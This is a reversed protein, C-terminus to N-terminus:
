FSRGSPVRASSPPSRAMGTLLRGHAVQVQGQWSGQSASAGELGARQGTRQPWAARDESSVRAPPQRRLAPAAGPGRGPPTPRKGLAPACHPRPAGTEPSGRRPPSAANEEASRTRGAGAGSRHPRRTRRRSGFGREGDTSHVSPRADSSSKRPSTATSKEPISQSGFLRNVETELACLPDQGTDM